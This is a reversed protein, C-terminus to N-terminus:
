PRGHFWDGLPESRSKAAFGFVGLNLAIVGTALAAALSRAEGLQDALTLIGPSVPRNEPTPALILAPTLNTAALALTMLFVAPPVGFWGALGARHAQRESAGLSIAVDSLRDRNGRGAHQSVLMLPSQSAAAVALLLLTGPTRYPDFCNRLTAFGAALFGPQESLRLSDAALGLLWGIALAGVGIALPPFAEPWAALSAVSRKRGTRVNLSRAAAMDIAVVAVGLAVANLILHRADPENLRHLFATLSFHRRASTTGSASSFASVFLVGVPLWALVATMTLFLIVATARPWPSPESRAISPGPPLASPRGGWWNLLVRGAMALGAAELALVAARPMPDPGTATEVLQFALTRRLGLVLPAGPEILTLTFVAGAARLAYPRVPPWILEWWIRFRSAGTQRAADIWAPQVRELVSATTLAVLGVGSTMEAWVWCIWGLGPGTPGDAIVRDGFLMRLGFATFLPSVVVPALALAALPGRGWFRWGTVVRALGVGLVLSGFTVTVAALLSNLSALRVFPDLVALAFPFVTPRIQGGPGQDVFAAPVLALVPALLILWLAFGAVRGARRLLGM